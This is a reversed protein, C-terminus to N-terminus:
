EILSLWRMISNKIVIPMELKDAINFLINYPQSEFTKIYNSYKTRNFAKSELALKMKDEKTSDIVNYGGRISIKDIHYSVMTGILNFIFMGIRMTAPYNDNHYEGIHICVKDNHKYLGNPTLFIFEPANFPFRAPAKIEALYEGNKWENDLDRIRMIWVGMDSDDKLFIDFNAQRTDTCLKFSEILAGRRIKPNEKIVISSM